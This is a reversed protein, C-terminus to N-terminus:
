HHKALRECLWTWRIFSVSLRKLDGILRLRYVGERGIGATCSGGFVIVGHSEHGQNKAQEDRGGTCREQQHQQDM